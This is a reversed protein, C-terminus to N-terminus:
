KSLSVISIILIAISAIPTIVLSADKFIDWFTKEPTIPIVLIDGHILVPNSKNISKLKEDKFIERYNLTIINSDTLRGNKQATRILKINDATEELIVNGSLSLLEIVNTGEPVLYIGPYRVGGLVNIEINVKGPDSYNFYNTGTKKLEESTVRKDDQAQLFLTNVAIIMLVEILFSFKPYCVQAM